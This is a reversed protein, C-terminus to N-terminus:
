GSPQQNSDLRPLLEGADVDLVRAVKILDSISFGVKGRLKASVTSQGIGIADSLQKQNIRRRFMLSQIAIGLEANVDVYEVGVADGAIHHEPHANTM